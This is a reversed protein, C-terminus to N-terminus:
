EWCTMTRDTDLHPLYSLNHRRYLSFETSPILSLSFQAEYIGGGSLVDEVLFVPLAPYWDSCCPEQTNAGLTWLHVFRYDALANLRAHM